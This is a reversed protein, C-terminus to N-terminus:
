GYNQLTYLLIHGPNEEEGWEIFVAVQYLNEWNTETFVVRYRYDTGEFEGEKEETKPTLARMRVASLVENALLQAETRRKMLQHNKQMGNFASLITTIGMALIAIAVVVEILTFGRKPTRSV